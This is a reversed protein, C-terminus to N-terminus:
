YIKIILSHVFFYSCSKKLALHPAAKLHVLFTSLVGALNLYKIKYEYLIFTSITGVIYSTAHLPFVLCDVYNM